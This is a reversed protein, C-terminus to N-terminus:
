TNSVSFALSSCQPLLNYIYSAATTQGPAPSGLSSAANSDAAQIPAWVSYPGLGSLFSAPWSTTTGSPTPNVGEDVSPCRPSQLWGGSSPYLAKSAPVTLRGWPGLGKEGSRIAPEGAAGGAPSGLRPGAPLPLPSTARWGWRVLALYFPFMQLQSVSASYGACGRTFFSFKWRDPRHPYNYTYTFTKLLTWWLLM